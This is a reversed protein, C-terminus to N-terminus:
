APSCCTMNWRKPTTKKPRIKTIKQTEWLRPKNIDKARANRAAVDERGACYPISLFIVLLLTFSGGGM